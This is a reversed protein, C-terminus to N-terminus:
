LTAQSVPRWLFGKSSAPSHSAFNGPSRTLIPSDRRRLLGQERFAKSLAKNFHKQKPSSKFTSVYQKIKVTLDHLKWYFETKSDKTTRVSIAHSLNDEQEPITKTSTM